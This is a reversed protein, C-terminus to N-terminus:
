PAVKALRAPSAFDRIARVVRQQEADQLEPYMPLSLVELSARETERMSPSLRLRGHYAPQLHIPQPYHVLTGIGADKLHQQLVDRESPRVVYLHFVHSVDPSRHPLVLGCQGLASDYNAALHARRANDQDLHRLKVRLIAAQMEDLRSNIGPIQSIYRQAWGYERLLKLNRLIDGDKTVVAGGDGIAGLNKTPYFSFCAADGMAGVRTGRYRAGHAQACDEIVKIKAAAAISLIADMDAPHGYLHVPVIAKTRPSLVAEVAKPDITYTIPDIDVLVPSAGTMEIAAVTAVATHSVTIVEDGPGIGCARLALHIAETGSGVGVAFDVGVYDAFEREFAMTEDGLIYRGNALVRAIADDIESKYAAYQALPNACHIM